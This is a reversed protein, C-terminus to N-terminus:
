SSPFHSAASQVKRSAILAALALSPASIITKLMTVVIRRDVGVILGGAGGVGAPSIVAWCLCVGGTTILKCDGRGSIVSGTVMSPVVCDRNAPLGNIWIVPPPNDITSPLLVTLPRVKGHNLNNLLTKETFEPLLMISPLKMPVSGVPAAM